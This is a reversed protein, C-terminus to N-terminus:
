GSWSSGPSFRGWYPYSCLAEETIAPLSTDKPLKVLHGRKWNDPVNEKERIKNLLPHLIDTSTKLRFAM